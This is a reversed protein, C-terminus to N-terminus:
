GNKWKKWFIYFFIGIGMIILGAWLGFNASDGTGYDPSDSSSPNQSDPTSPNSDTNKANYTNKFTPDNGEVSASLKGDKDATVTVTVTYISTDYTMNVNSEAVEAVYYTYTGAKYFTLDQFKIEGNANNTVTDLVKGSASTLTFHFEGARLERGTLEKKATIKTKVQKETPETYTNTFKPDSSYTVTATMKGKENSVKVTVGFEATDYDVNALGNNKESITYKYTGVKSYTIEDFTVAGSGDNKATQIEKGSEDKLIFEFEGSKLDRGELTKSAKIVAGSSSYTNTFVPSTSGKATTSVSGNKIVTTTDAPNAYTVSAQLTGHKDAKVTVVVSYETTDYTIGETTGPTEVLTYSYTGAADFSLTDFTITGNAKNKATAITNGSQDRLEFQFENDKLDRGDLKKTARIIISAPTCTNYFIPDAENGDEDKYSVTAVLKSEKTEEDTVAKVEVVATYVSDDYSITEDTGEVESITYTYTGVQKYEIDDFIIKGDEQNKKTQIVAGSEDKLEFSFQAAKLNGGELIKTAQISAAGEPATYINEFTGFDGKVTDASVPMVSGLITVASLAVACTRKILNKVSM